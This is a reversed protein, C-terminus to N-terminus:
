KNVHKELIKTANIKSNPNKRIKWIEELAKKRSSDIDIIPYPYDKGIFFDYMEQEIKTMKWPEHVYEPPISKLETYKKNLPMIFLVEPPFRVWM